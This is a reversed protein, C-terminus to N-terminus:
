FDGHKLFFEALTLDARLTIKINSADCEVLKPYIGIQEMAASEDTPIEGRRNCETLAQQLLGLPFIQPTQARWYQTRDVTWQAQGQDNSKKLTDVVRIALMAGSEGQHGEGMMSEILKAIDAPRVCPRVSDHVLILDSSKADHYRQLYRIANQVTQARHAGGPSIGLLKEHRYALKPWHPDGEKIGVVIGDIGDCSALRDLTHAIVPRDNLMLYQKPLQAAMRSGIGAAPLIVWVRAWVPARTHASLRPNDSM